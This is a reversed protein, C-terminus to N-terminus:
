HLEVGIAETEIKSLLSLEGKEFLMDLQTLPIDLSSPKYNNYDVFRIGEVVRDNYAERFRIGGGNTAYSYALYDVTFNDKHIWYVFEDEFDTGGGEEAFTVRIKHYSIGKISADGLLEKNVASAQLGYPLQAFYHVSNVSNAYRGIMSDELQLVKNNKTRTFGDNTLVDLTVGTSDEIIRQLQFSGGSRNSVYCRGRFTFDITAHDCNGQCANMIANDIIQHATLEPSKQKCSFLLITFFLISLTKM